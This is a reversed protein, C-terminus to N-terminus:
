FSYSFYLFSYKLAKKYDKLKIFTSVLQYGMKKKFIIEINKPLLNEEITINYFKEQMLLLSNSISQSLSNPNIRYSMFAKDKSIIHGKLYKGVQFLFHRDEPSKLNTNFKINYKKLQECRYIYASPCPSINPNFEAIEKQINGFTGRKNPTLPLIQNNNDIHQIHFTCFDIDDNTKFVELVSSFYDKSIIDDSDLFLIFDGTIKQFGFNRTCSVGTNKKNIIQIKDNKIEKIKTLSNDTSGDNIIIIEFNSYSQNLVSRITDQIFQEANYCPIVVSFLPENTMQFPVYLQDLSSIKNDIDFPQV